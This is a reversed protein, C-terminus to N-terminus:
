GGSPEGLVLANGRHEHAILSPRESYLVRLCRIVYDVAEDRAAVADAHALSRQGHVVTSRRVYLKKVAKQLAHREDPSEKLLKAVSASIRFTLEGQAGFLNELAIVADILGDEADERRGVARLVRRRALRIPKDKASDVLRVWTEVGASEDASLARPPLPRQGGSSFSVSFNHSTPDVITTSGYSIPVPEQAALLLGLSTDEARSWLYDRQPDDNFFAQGKHLDVGFKAVLSFSTELLLGALDRDPDATAITTPRAQEPIVALQDRRMPRLTGWPLQCAPCESALTAGRLAVYAPVEVTGDTALKRWVDCLEVAATALTKANLAGRFRTLAEAQRILASSMVALQMSGGRGANTVVTCVTDLDQPGGGTFVSGLHRDALVEAKFADEDPGACYVSSGMRSDMGFRQAARELLLVPYAAVALRWLPAQLTDLPSPPDPLAGGVDARAQNLQSGAAVTALRGFLIGRARNVDRAPDVLMALPGDAVEENLKADLDDDNSVWALLEPGFANKLERLKM